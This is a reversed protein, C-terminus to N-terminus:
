KHSEGDTTESDDESLGLRTGLYEDIERRVATGDVDGDTTSRRVLFGHITVLLFEAIPTTEVDDFQESEIGDEIISEIHSLFVRDAETFQTRFEENYVAQGRLAVMARMFAGMESNQASSLTDDLLNRLRERPDLQNEEHTESEFHELMYALFDTLLEDKSDYYQYILSKSKPFEEDIDDITLATYGHKQLAAYTAKLMETRTDDPQAPFLTSNDM